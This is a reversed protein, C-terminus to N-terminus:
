IFITIFIVIHMSYKLLEIVQFINIIRNKKSKYIILVENSWLFTNMWSIKM